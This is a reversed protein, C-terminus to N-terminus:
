VSCITPLTLHTYSVADLITTSQLCNLETPGQVFLTSIPSVTDIEVSAIDTMVCGTNTNTINLFYDGAGNVEIQSSNAGSLINGDTTTWVYSYDPGLSGSGILNTVSNNCDLKQNVGADVMPVGADLVIDTEITQICGNADVITVPYNGLDLGSLDKTNAGNGWNFVYPEIGGSVSLEISGDMANPCTLPSAVLSALVSIETVTAAGQVSGQCGHSQVSLPHYVGENNVPLSYSTQSIGTIPTQPINDISYEFTFPGTGTFDVTINNQRDRICM